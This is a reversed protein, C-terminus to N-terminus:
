PAHNPELPPRPTSQPALNARPDPTEHNGMLTRFVKLRESENPISRSALLAKHFCNYSVRSCDTLIRPSEDGFALLERAESLPLNPPIDWEEGVLLSLSGVKALRPPRGHLQNLRESTSPPKPVHYPVKFHRLVDNAYGISCGERIAKRVALLITGPRRDGNTMTRDVAERLRWEPSTPSVQARRPRGHLQNLREPTM